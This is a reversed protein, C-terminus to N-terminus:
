HCIQNQLFSVQASHILIRLPILMPIKKLSYIESTNIKFLSNGKQKVTTEESAELLSIEEEIIKKEKKNENSINGLEESNKEQEDM